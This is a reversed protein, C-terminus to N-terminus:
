HTRIMEPLKKPLDDILEPSSKEAARLVARALEYSTDIFPIDSESLALPLETCGLILIEANKERLEQIVQKLLPRAFDIDGAKISQIVKMVIQQSADSVHIPLIDQMDLAQDYLRHSRTGTTALIGANKTMPYNTKIAEISADIISIVPKSLADQIETMWAHATNCPLCLIEAGMEILKEGSAIIAPVPSKGHGLLAQTRDPIQSHCDIYIRPYLQDKPEQAINILKTFFDATARPGVGGIIGISKYRTDM